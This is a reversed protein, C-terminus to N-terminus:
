TDTGTQTVTLLIQDNALGFRCLSVNNATGLGVPDYGCGGSYNAVSHVLTSIAGATSVEQISSHNEDAVYINGSPDLAIGTLYGFSNVASYGGHVSTKALTSVVGAPTIKRIASNGLDVVYLNGSADITIATPYQFEAASGAGDVYGYVGSQGAL